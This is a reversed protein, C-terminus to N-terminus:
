LRHASRGQGFFTGMLIGFGFALALFRVRAMTGSPLELQRRAIIPAIKRPYTFIHQVAERFLVRKPMGFRRHLAACVRNNLYGNQVHALCNRSKVHDVYIENSYAYRGSSFLEPIVRFEWAGVALPLQPGLAASRVLASTVLAFPPAQDLPPWIPALGYVFSAWDWASVSTLNKTLIAVLDIDRRERITTRMATMASDDIFAHDELIFLWEKKSVTPIHCRLQFLDAVDVQVVRLWPREIQMRDLAHVARTLLVVEDDDIPLRRLSDIVALAGDDVNSTVVIFAISGAAAVGHERSSLTNQRNVMGM